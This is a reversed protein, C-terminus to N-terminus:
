VQAFAEAVTAHESVTTAENARDRGVASRHSVGSAYACAQNMKMWKSPRADSTERSPCCKAPQLTSRSKTWWSSQQPPRWEDPGRDGKSRNASSGLAVLRWPDALHERVAHTDRQGM